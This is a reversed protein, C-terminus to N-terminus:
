EMSELRDVLAHLGVGHSAKVFIVTDKKIWIQLEKWLHDLSDCYSVDESVGYGHQFSAGYQGVYFVRKAKCEAALRGIEEHEQDSISGLELMDGILLVKSSCPFAGFADLALKMSLPNANYSEDICTCGNVLRVLRGRGKGPTFDHLRKQLEAQDLHPYLQLTLCICAVANLAYHKGFCRVTFTYKMGNFPFSFTTGETNMSDILIPITLNTDFGYLQVHPCDRKLDKELGDLHGNAFCARPNTVNQFIMAKSHLIEHISSFFEAHSHGIGTLIAGKSSPFLPLLTEIEGPYSASLESIIWRTNNPIKTLAVPLGIPTNLNGFTAYSSPLLKALMQKTTTKGASGTILISDYKKTIESAIDLLAQATDDVLLLFSDTCDVCSIPKQAIVGRAGKALAQQAYEHGDVREGKLCVFVDGPQVNRSDIALHLPYETTDSEDGYLMTGKTIKTLIYNTVLFM